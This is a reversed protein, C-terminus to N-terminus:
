DVNEYYNEIGREAILTFALEIFENYAKTDICCEILEEYTYDDPLGEMLWTDLFEDEVESLEKDLGYLVEARKYIKNLKDM